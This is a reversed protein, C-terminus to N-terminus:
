ILQPLECHYQGQTEPLRFNGSEGGFTSVGVARITHSMGSNWHLFVSYGIDGGYGVEIGNGRWGIWFPRYLSCSLIGPTHASTLITGDKLERIYSYSDTKLGLEVVYADTGATRHMHKSLHIAVNGCSRVAFSIHPSYRTTIWNSLPSGDKLSSVLLQLAAFNFVFLPSFLYSSVSFVSAYLSCSFCNVDYLRRRHIQHSM